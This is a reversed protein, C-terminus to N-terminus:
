SNEIVDLDCDPDTESSNILELACAPRTAASIRASLMWFRVGIGFFTILVSPRFHPFRLCRTPAM